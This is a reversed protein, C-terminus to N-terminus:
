DKIGLHAKDIIIHDTEVEVLAKFVQKMRTETAADQAVQYFKAAATERRLSEEFNEHTTEYAKEDIKFKPYEVLIDKFVSAHEGEVKALARFLSRSEDDGENKAVLAAADYFAYNKLEIELATVGNERSIETLELGKNLDTYKETKVMYQTHAGCFPCTSLGESIYTDGCILCRYVM